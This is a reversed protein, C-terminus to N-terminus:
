ARRGRELTASPTEGFQQRYSRSFDSLHWFGLALAAAKVSDAGSLLRGRVLWLRRLRLYRHLSMGRYRLVTDHLSRVSLGLKKALDESYIPQSLDENLIARVDQFVKFQRGDNVRTSWRAPVISAFAADAGALLSERMATATMKADTADAPTAAIALVEEVLKRLWQLASRNIEFVAFSGHSEPWGRNGVEPRFVVSTYQRAVMEVASYATGGSGIVIAARDEQMGNFRISGRHEDDMLFGIATCDPALQADIVRPFSKTFNVDFGPLQLVTQVAAIRRVLPTFSVDLTRVSSRFEDVDSFRYTKPALLPAPDDISM